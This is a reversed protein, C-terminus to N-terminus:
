AHRRSHQCEPDSRVQRARFSFGHNGPLIVISAAADALLAGARDIMAAGLHNNEFTDGALLVIDAGLARAATLVSRLGRTGDFHPPALHDEDVHLDSSQVLVADPAPNETALRDM